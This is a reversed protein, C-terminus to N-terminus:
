RINEQKRWLPYEPFVMVRLPVLKVVFVLFSYPGVFNTYSKQDSVERCLQAVKYRKVQLEFVICSISKFKPSYSLDFSESCIYTVFVNAIKGLKKVIKPKFCLTM